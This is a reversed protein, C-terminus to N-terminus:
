RDAWARAPVARFQFRRSVVLEIGACFKIVGCTLDDITAPEHHITAPQDHVTTPEYQVAPWM